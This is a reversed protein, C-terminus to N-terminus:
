SLVEAIDADEEAKARALAEETAEAAAAMEAESEKIHADSWDDMGPTFQEVHPHVKLLAARAESLVPFVLLSGNKDRSPVVGVMGIFKKFQILSHYRLRIDSAKFHEYLPSTRAARPNRYSRVQKTEGSTMRQADPFAGEELIQWLWQIEPSASERIQARLAENDPVGFRPHWDGLDTNLMDHLFAEKGGGNIQKVLAIFYEENKLYKDSAACCAYRREDDTTPVMWGENSALMISLKNMGEFANLGKPEYTLTPETVMRKLIGNAANDGPWLAEDVFLLCCHLLHGNFAGILHKSNSIHM